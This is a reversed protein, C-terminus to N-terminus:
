KGQAASRGYGNRLAAEFERLKKEAEPNLDSPVAIQVTVYEDGFGSPASSSAIGKGALRIRSGSRTGAPIRCIVDGYLTGVRAEGGLVATIYPISVSTYIDKGKREYGPRSGVSVKLLLDGNDGGMSGRTGKGRLRVTQGEDIGAPIKVSLTRKSGDSDTLEVTKECGFVAEDFSIQIRASIDKGRCPAARKEYGGFINGFLDEFIDETEHEFHWGSYEEFGEGARGRKFAEQGQETNGSGDFAAHGYRDYLKRKNRDSLVGYAETVEKFLEEAGEKGRSSDPHYKKALKRYASKIRAEDADRSIGLVEYYDRKKSM